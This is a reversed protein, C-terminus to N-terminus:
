GSMDRMAHSDTDRREPESSSESNPFSGNLKEKEGFDSVSVIVGDPTIQNDPSLGYRDRFYESLFRMIEDASKLKEYARRLLEKDGSDLERM